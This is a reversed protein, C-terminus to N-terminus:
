SGFSWSQWLKFHSDYQGTVMERHSHSTPLQNKDSFLWRSRRTTTMIWHGVTVRLIVWMESWFSWTGSRADCFTWCRCLGARYLQRCDHGLSRSHCDYHGIIIVLIVMVTVTGFLQWVSQDTSEHTHRTSLQNQASFSRRSWRTGLTVWHVFTVTVIVWM